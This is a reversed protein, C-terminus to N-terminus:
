LPAPQWDRRRPIRDSVSPMTVEVLPPLDEAHLAPLEFRGYYPAFCGKARRQECFKTFISEGDAPTLPRRLEDLGRVREREGSRINIRSPPHTLPASRWTSAM